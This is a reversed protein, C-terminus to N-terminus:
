CLREGAEQSTASPASMSALVTSPGAASALPAQEARRARRAPVPDYGGECFPHCRLLRRLALWSGRAAGHESLAEYAYESCSPAFRCSPRLLPSIALQYFRVLAALPRALGRARPVPQEVPVQEPALHETV